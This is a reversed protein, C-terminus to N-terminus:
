RQKDIDPDSKKLFEYTQQDILQIALWRDGWQQLILGPFSEDAQEVIRAMADVEKSDAPLRILIITARNPDKSGLVAWQDTAAAEKLRRLMPLVTERDTSVADDRDFFKGGADLFEIADRKEYRALLSNEVQKDAISKYNPACGACTLALGIWGLRMGFRIRSVLERAGFRSDPFM